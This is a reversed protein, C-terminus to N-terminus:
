VQPTSNELLEEYDLAPRLLAAGMLTLESALDITTEGFPSAPRWAWAIINEDHDYYVEHIAWYYQPEDRHPQAPQQIDPMDPLRAPSRVVRYNWGGYRDAFLDGM